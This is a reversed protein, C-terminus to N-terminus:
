KLSASVKLNFSFHSTFWKVEGFLCPWNSVLASINDEGNQQGQKKEYAAPWLFEVQFTLYGAPFEVFSLAILAMPPPSSSRKSDLIRCATTNFTILVNYM